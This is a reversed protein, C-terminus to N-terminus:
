SRVCATHVRSNNSRTSHGPPPTGCRCNRGSGDYDPLRVRVSPAGLAVAGRMVADVDSIEHCVAYGGVNPITLGADDCLARIKPADAVFSSLPLTCRNGFWFSPAPADVQDVVRWEIGDYGLEALARVAEEPTWEPLGATFAAFRM